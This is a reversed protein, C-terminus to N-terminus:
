ERSIEILIHEKNDFALQLRPMLADFAKRSLMVEDEGEQMAVLICGETDANTNGAHMRIGEFNPVNLIHPMIRQFRESFDLTLDYKGEPICTEGAVKVKWIDGPRYCDELTYCQWVGNLFLDGITSKDTFKRRVLELVM